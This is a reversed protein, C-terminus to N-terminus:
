LSNIYLNFSWDLSPFSSWSFVEPTCHFSSLTESETDFDNHRKLSMIIVYVILISFDNGLLQWYVFHIARNKLDVELHIFTYKIFLSVMECSICLNDWDTKVFSINFCV